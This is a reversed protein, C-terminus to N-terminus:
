AWASRYIVDLTSASSISALYKINTAGPGLSFWQTATLSSYRSATGNLVVSRDATDIDLYDGSALVIAVSISQGTTENLITPNTVPGTIHFRPATYATGANTVTLAGGSGTSGFVLPFVLPFTMGGSPVTMGTSATTLIDSYINPDTAFLEVAVDSAWSFYDDNRAVDLKRPRCNILATNGGAMGPIRFKLPLESNQGPAFAAEFAGIAASFSAQDWAVISCGLSVSRGGLFDAGPVLGAHAVRQLDSSRVEAATVFTRPWYPDTLLLGNYEIQRDAVVLTM